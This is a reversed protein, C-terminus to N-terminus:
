AQQRRRTLSRGVLLAGAGFVFLASPEPIPPTFLQDQNTRSYYLQTQGYGTYGKFGLVYGFVRFAGASMSGSTASFANGYVAEWVAAQVGTIAQVHTVGLEQELWDLSNGWKNAITAAFVFQRKPPGSAFSQTEAAAPDYAAFSTYTAKGIYQSLDACFSTGVVNDVSEHFQVTTFQRAQGNFSVGITEGLDWGTVQFSVAFAPAALLVLAAIAFMRLSRM